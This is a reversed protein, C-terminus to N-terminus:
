PLQPKDNDIDQCCVNSLVTTAKDTSGASPLPPKEGRTALLQKDHKAQIAESAKYREMQENTAKKQHRAKWQAYTMGYVHQAAEEYGLANLAKVVNPDNESGDAMKRAEVVM